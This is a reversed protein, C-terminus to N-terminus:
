EGDFRINDGCSTNGKEHTNDKLRSAIFGLGGRLDPCNHFCMSDTWNDMLGVGDM